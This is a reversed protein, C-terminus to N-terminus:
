ERRKTKLMHFKEGDLTSFQTVQHEPGGGSEARIRSRRLPSEVEVFYKWILGRLSFSCCLLKFASFVSGWGFAKRGRGQSAEAKLGEGRGGRTHVASAEAKVEPEKAEAEKM